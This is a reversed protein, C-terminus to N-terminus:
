RSSTGRAAPTTSSISCRRAPSARTATGLCVLSMNALPSKYNNHIIELEKERDDFIKLSLNGLQELRQVDGYTGAYRTCSTRCPSSSTPSMPFPPNLQKRTSSPKSNKFPPAYHQEGGSQRNRNAHRFASLPNVKLIELIRHEQPPRQHISRAVCRARGAGQRRIGPSCM